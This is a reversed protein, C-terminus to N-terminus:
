PSVKIHTQINIDTEICFVSQVIEGM